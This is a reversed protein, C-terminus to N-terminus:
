REQLQHKTSFTEEYLAITDPTKGLEDECIETLRPYEEERIFRGVESLPSDKLVIMPKQFALFDYCISSVDGILLETNALLPYVPPFDEILNVGSAKLTEIEIPFQKYLNPHLKVLLDPFKVLEKWIKPFSSNKEGDQWTPAYLFTSKPALHDYFKRHKQYYELRYNGVRETPVNVGKEKLFEEMRPGYTLLLEEEKLAEMFPSNRGKDSNGHPCWITKMRKNHFTEAFFLVEDLLVRPTSYFITDFETVIKEPAEFPHYLLIKLDPYFKKAQEAMSAETLILPIKRLACLPALHDLHHSEPGFILGASRM